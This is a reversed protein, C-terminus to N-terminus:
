HNGRSSKPLDRQDFFHREFKTTMSPRDITLDPAVGEVIALQGVIATVERGNRVIDCLAAVANTVLRNPINAVARM